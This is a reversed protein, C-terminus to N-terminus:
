DEVLQANVYPEDRHKLMLHRGVQMGDTELDRRVAASDQSTVVYPTLCVASASICAVVPIHKLSRSLRHHVSDLAAIRPVVV